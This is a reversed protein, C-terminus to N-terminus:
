SATTGPRARYKVFNMPNDGFLGAGAQKKREGKVWLLGNV